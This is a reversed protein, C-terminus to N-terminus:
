NLIEEEGNIDLIIFNMERSVNTEIQVLWMNRVIGNKKQNGSVCRRIDYLCFWCMSWTTPLSSNRRWGKIRQLLPAINELNSKPMSHLRQIPSCQVVVKPFMPHCNHLTSTPLMAIHKKVHIQYTGFKSIRRTCNKMHIQDHFPTTWRISDIHTVILVLHCITNINTLGFLEYGELACDWKNLNTAGLFLGM